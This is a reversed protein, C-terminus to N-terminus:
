ALRAGARYHEGAEDRRDLADLLAALELHAKRTPSISLSAELYSQAKGWLKLHACLRGLTLLLVADEPHAKLWEEARTVRALAVGGVCEGYLEVLKPDWEEKLRQEILKGADECDGAALLEEAAAVALRGDRKEHNPIGKFYAAIAEADGSRARLSEQHARLKLPAAQDSSLAGHKELQRTVKLLDEWRGLAQHVRVALRLAAIHRDGKESLAELARAAADYRRAEVNARLETMLRAAGTQVDHQAARQMWESARAEDDMAHASQAALLASLGPSEGLDYARTARKLAHGFRGELLFKLSQRFAEAARRRRWRERVDRVAGPMRVVGALTRVGLYGLAFLIILAAVLFNLSVEIRYPPVVLLAYGENYRGVIAVGVALAASALLWLLARM